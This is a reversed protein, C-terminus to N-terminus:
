KQNPSTQFESESNDNASEAACKNYNSIKLINLHFAEFIIRYLKYRFLSGQLHKNLYYIRALAEFIQYFLWHLPLMRNWYGIWIWFKCLWIARTVRRPLNSWLLMRTRLLCSFINLTLTLDHQQFKLISTLCSAIACIHLM